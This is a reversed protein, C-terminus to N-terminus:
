NQTTLTTNSTYVHDGFATKASRAVAVSVERVLEKAPRKIAIQKAESVRVDSPDKKMSVKGQTTIPTILQAYSLM